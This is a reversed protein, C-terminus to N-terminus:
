SKAVPPLLAQLAEARTGKPSEALGAAESYRDAKASPTQPVLEFVRTRRTLADREPIGEVVGILAEVRKGKKKRSASKPSSGDLARRLM